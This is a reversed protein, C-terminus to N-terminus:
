FRSGAVGLYARRVVPNEILEKATGRPTSGLTIALAAACLALWRRRHNM